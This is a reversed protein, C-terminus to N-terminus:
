PTNNKFAKKGKREMERRLGPRVDRTLSTGGERKQLLHFFPGKGRENAPVSKTKKRKGKSPTSLEGEGGKESIASNPVSGKRKKGRGRRGLGRKKKKKEEGGQKKTFAPDDGRKKKKKNHYQTVRLSKKKGKL